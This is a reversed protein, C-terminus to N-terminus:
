WLQILKAVLEANPYQGLGLRVGNPFRLEMDSDGYVSEGTVRAFGKESLDRQRFRNLWYRFCHTKIGVRNCFDVQSEEGDVYEQIIGFMHARKSEREEM